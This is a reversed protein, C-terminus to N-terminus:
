TILRMKASNPNTRRLPGPPPCTRQQLFRTGIAIRHFRWSLQSAISACDHLLKRASPGFPTFTAVTYSDMAKFVQLIQLHRSGNSGGDYSAAQPIFSPGTCSGRGSTRKAPPHPQATSEQAKCTGCCSWGASELHVRKLLSSTAPGSTCDLRQNAEAGACTTGSRSSSSDEHGTPPFLAIIAWWAECRTHQGARKEQAKVRVLAGAVLM